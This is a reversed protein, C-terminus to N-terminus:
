ERNKEFFLINGAALQPSRVRKFWFENFRLVSREVVRVPLAGHLETFAGAIRKKLALGREAFRSVLWSIRAERCLLLGAETQRWYEAGAATIELKAPKKGRFRQLVTQGLVRRAARTALAELSWMNNESLILLGGPRLVRVLESLAKEVEPVHMLVGWCLVCDYSEDAVPLALLNGREFRIMRELGKAAANARAKDLIYESLDVAVVSFGRKALRISHAADGCGADLIVPKGRSAFAAAIEDFALEFFRGSDETYFDGIWQEHVDPRALTKQVIESERTSM